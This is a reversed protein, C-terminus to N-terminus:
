KDQALLPVLVQAYPTGWGTIPDWGAAAHYGTVTAGKYKM